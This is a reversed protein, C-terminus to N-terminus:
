LWGLLHDTTKPWQKCLLCSLLHAMTKPPAIWGIPLGLIILALSHSSSRWKSPAQSPWTFRWAQCTTSVEFSTNYFSCVLLWRRDMQLHPPRPPQPAIGPCHSSLVVLITCSCSSWPHWLHRPNQCPGVLGSSCIEVELPVFVVMLHNKRSTHVM